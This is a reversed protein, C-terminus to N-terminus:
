KLYQAEVCVVYVVGYTKWVILFKHLSAGVVSFM